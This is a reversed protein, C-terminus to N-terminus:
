KIPIITPCTATYIQEESADELYSVFTKSHTVFMDIDQFEIFPVITNTSLTSGEAHDFGTVLGGRRRVEIALLKNWLIGASSTWLNEPLRSSSKLLLKQYYGVCLSFEKHWDYIEHFDLASLEVGHQSLIKTFIQIYEKFIKSNFYESESRKLLARIETPHAGPFFDVLKVLSAPRNLKKAYKSALPNVGTLIIERDLHVNSLDCRTFGDNRVRTAIKNRLKQFMHRKILEPRFREKVIDLYKNSNQNLDVHFISIDIHKSQAKKISVELIKKQYLDVMKLVCYLNIIKLHEYFEADNDSTIKKFYSASHKIMTQYLDVVNERSIPWLYNEVGNHSLKFNQHNFL